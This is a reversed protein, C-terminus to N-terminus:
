RDWHWTTGDKSDELVVGLEQLRNRVLDSLAWLKQKRLESRIEVLLDVFPDATGTGQSAAPSLTLGLVGALKRLMSQAPELESDQAGDARAQNISRVLEFLAALAGASNFDDNMAEEFAVRTANVRDLLM